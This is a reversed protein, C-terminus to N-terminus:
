SCNRKQLIEWLKTKMKWETADSDTEIKVENNKRRQTVRKNGEGQDFIAENQKGWLQAL